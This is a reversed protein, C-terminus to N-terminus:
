KEDELIYNREEKNRTQSLNFEYLADLSVKCATKLFKSKQEISNYDSINNLFYLFSDELLINLSNEMKDSEIFDIKYKNKNKKCEDLLKSLVLNKNDKNIICQSNSCTLRLLSSSDSHISEQNAIYDKFNLNEIPFSSPFAILFDGAGLDIIFSENETSFMDTNFINATDLKEKCYNRLNVLLDKIDKNTDNYSYLTNHLKIFATSFCCIKFNMCNQDLLYDVLYHKSFEGTNPERILKNLLDNCIIEDISDIKKESINDNTLINDLAMLSATCSYNPTFKDSTNSIAEKSELIHYTSNIISMYIRKLHDIDLTDEYLRLSKFLTSFNQNLMNELISWNDKENSGLEYSKKKNSIQEEAVDLMEEINNYDTSNISSSSVSISFLEDKYQELISDIENIIENAKDLSTNDLVLLFEDGGIRLCKSNTPLNTNNLILELARHIIFDGVKYGKSANIDNLKNFDISIISYQYITSNNSYKPMIVSHMYQKSLIGLDELGYSYMYKKIKNYYDINLVIKVVM